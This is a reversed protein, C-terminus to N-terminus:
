LDARYAEIEADINAETIGQIEPLAQTEKFLTRWKNLRETMDMESMVFVIVKEGTKFPLDSLSFSHSNDIVLEKKLVTQM